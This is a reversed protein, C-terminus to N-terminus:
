IQEVQLGRRRREALRADDLIGAVRKVDEIGPLVLEPDTRDHSTIRITGVGALRELPGQEFAIDDVDLLEIRDHVRRLVGREHILRQTTLTYHVSMRRFGMVAGFYFWPALAGLALILWLSVERVWIIGVLVLVFSICGSIVWAGFMAKSSYGGRWLEEEPQDKADRRSSAAQQFAGAPSASGGFSSSNQADGAVASDLRQGCKHCYVAAPVVEVGCAPCHM